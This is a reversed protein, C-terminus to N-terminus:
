ALSAMAPRLSDRGAHCLPIQLVVKAVPLVDTGQHFPATLRIHNQLIVDRFWPFQSYIAQIKTLFNTTKHWVILSGRKKLPEFTHNPKPCHDPLADTMTAEGQCICCRVKTSRPQPKQLAMKHSVVTVRCTKCLMGHDHHYGRTIDFYSNFGHGITSITSKGMLLMTSREMAIHTQRFIPYIGLSIAM